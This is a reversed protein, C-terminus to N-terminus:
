GGLKTKVRALRDDAKTSGRKKAEEYQALADQYRLVKFYADGLKLRYSQNAPSAAVAKEAYVVAKQDAGTDFYIDSLGSLAAANTHDYAIAQNFLSSAESRKGSRLAALGQEALEKAKVPDRTAAGLLERPDATVVRKKKTKPDLEVPPVVEPAAPLATAAVAVVPAAEAVPKRAREREREDERKRKEERERLVPVQAIVSSEAQLPLSGRVADFEAVMRERQVPDAEVQISSILGFALESETFERRNARGIFNLLFSSDVQAREFAHANEPVFALSWLYHNTAALQAGQDWLVDAQRVLTQAFEKRLAHGREDAADELAGPLAELELVKAYATPADPERPPPMV